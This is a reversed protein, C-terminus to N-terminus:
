VVVTGEPNGLISSLKIQIIPKLYAAGLLHIVLKDMMIM